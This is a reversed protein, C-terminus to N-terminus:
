SFILNLEELVLEKSSEIREYFFSPERYESILKEMIVNSNGSNLDLVEILRGNKLDNNFSNVKAAYNFGVSPINLVKAVLYGHLRGSIFISMNSIEKIVLEKNVFEQRRIRLKINKNQILKEYIYDNTSRDLNETLDIVIIEYIEVKKVFEYIAKILIQLSNHTIGLIWKTNIWSIGLRKTRLCEENEQFTQLYVLDKTLKLKQSKGIIENAIMYSEYDRLTVKTSLKLILWVKIRSKIKTIREIGINLLYIKKGLISAILVEKFACFAHDSLCTGGGWLFADIKQLKQIKQTVSDIRVYKVRNNSEYHKSKGRIKVIITNDKNVNILYNVLIDLMLEDGLNGFGYYGALYYRM